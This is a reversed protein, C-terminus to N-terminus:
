WVNLRKTVYAVVCAIIAVVWFLPVLNLLTVQISPIMYYYSITVLYIKGDDFVGVDFEIVQTAETYTMNNAPDITYLGTDATTENTTITFYEYTTSTNRAAYILAATSNSVLPEIEQSETFPIYKSDELSTVINPTIALCIVVILFLGIGETLNKDAM